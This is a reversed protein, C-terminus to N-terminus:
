RGRKRRAPAPPKKEVEGKAEGKKKEPEGKKPNRSTRPKAAQEAARQRKIAEFHHGMRQKVVGQQGITWLNTTIWYICVGIPVQIIFFVFFFPMAAFMYKQQKDQIFSFLLTSGLMSLIYIVIIAVETATGTKDLNIFIDNMWLFAKDGTPHIQYRLM